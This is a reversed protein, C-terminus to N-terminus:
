LLKKVKQPVKVLGYQVFRKLGFRSKHSKWESTIVVGLARLESIRKTYSMVGLKTLAELGTITKHKLLYNLILKSQKRM